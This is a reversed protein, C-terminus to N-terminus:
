QRHHLGGRRWRSRLVRRDARRARRVRHGAGAPRLGLRGFQECGAPRHGRCSGGDGWGRYRRRSSGVPSSNAVSIGSGPWVPTTLVPIYPTRALLRGVEDIRWCVLHQRLADARLRRSPTGVLVQLEAPSAPGNGARALEYNVAGVEGVATFLDERTVGLQELAAVLAAAQKPYEFSLERDILVALTGAVPRGQRVAPLEGAAFRRLWEHRSVWEVLDFRDDSHAETIGVVFRYAAPHPPQTGAARAIGLQRRSGSSAAPALEGLDARVIVVGTDGSTYAFPPHLPLDDPDLEGLAARELWVTLREILGFM